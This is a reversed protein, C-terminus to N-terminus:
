IMQIVNIILIRFMKPPPPQVKPPIGPSGGELNLVPKNIKDTENATQPRVVLKCDETAVCCYGTVVSFTLCFMLVKFYGKRDRGGRVIIM